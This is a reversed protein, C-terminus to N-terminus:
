TLKTKIIENPLISIRYFHKCDIIELVELKNINSGFARSIATDIRFIRNNCISNIGQPQVTHGIVLKGEPGFMIDIDDCVFENPMFMGFDRNLSINKIFELEESYLEVNGKLIKPLVSNIHDIFSDFSNWKKRLVVNNYLQKSIGGHCFYIDGIKIISKLVCSLKTAMESGLSIINKRNTKLVDSYYKKTYINVHDINSDLINVIEHNGICMLVAGGKKNAEINLNILLNYIAIEDASYEKKNTDYGRGGDDLVDGTQVIITNGGIWNNNHDILNLRNLIFFLHGFDGHIDGIAIIRKPIKPLKSYKICNTNNILEELEQRTTIKPHFHEEM